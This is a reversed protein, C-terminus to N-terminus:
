FQLDKLGSRGAANYIDAGTQAFVHYLHGPTFGAKNCGFKGGPQVLAKCALNVHGGDEYYYVYAVRNVVSPKVLGRFLGTTGSKYVNVSQVAKVLLFRPSAVGKANRVTYNTSTSPSITLAAGGGSNITLNAITTYGSAGAGKALVEVQDGPTGTIVVKTFQGAKIVNTGIIFTPVANAAKFTFVSSDSCNGAAAGTFPDNVAKGCQSAAAQTANIAATVTENGTSGAPAALTVSVTGDPGTVGSQSSVGNGFAAPGSETFDVTIGAVPNGFVDTVKATLETNGTSIQSSNPTLNINRASAPKAANYTIVGSDSANDISATITQAGSQTSAVLVTAVGNADTTATQPNSKLNGGADVFSGVGSLTFTVTKGALPVGGATKVLACVSHTTGTVAPDYSKADNAPDLTTVGCTGTGTVDLDVSGATAPETIFKNTATATPEGVDAADNESVVDAVATITDTGTANGPGTDAYQLTAKGNSDTTKDRLTAAGIGGNRGSISFDINANPIPVGFQDTLTAVFTSTQGTQTTNLPPEITLTTAVAKKFTVTATDSAPGPVSQGPVEGKIQDVTGNVAAPDSFNFVLKGNADTTGEFVVPAALGPNGSNTATFRVPVGAAPVGSKTVLATFVESKHTLPEVCDEASTDAVTGACTVDIAYGTPATPITTTATASPENTDKGATTPTSTTQNVWFTITDTGANAATYTLQTTGTNSTSPLVTSAKPNAGTITYNILVNPVTDGSANKATVIYKVQDGVAATQSPPTVTLSAVADQTANGGPGGATFTMTSVDSPDSGEFAGSNNADVYTRVSATGVQNSLVGFTAKGSNATTVTGTAQTASGTTTDDGGADTSTPNTTGPDCLALVRGTPTGTLNAVVEVDQGPVGNGGADTVTVTFPICTGAGASASDPQLSVNSPAGFLTVTAESAPEGNDLFQNGNTDAWIAVKDIGPTTNAYSCHVTAAGLPTCDGDAAANNNLKDADPGSTIAYRVPTIDGGTRTIDATVDVIGPSSQQYTAPNANVASVAALAPTALLPISVAAVTAFTALGALARSRVSRTHSM